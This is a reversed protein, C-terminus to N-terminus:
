HDHPPEVQVIVRVARCGHKHWGKWEPMWDSPDDRFSYRADCCAKMAEKRTRRITDPMVASSNVYTIGWLRQPKPQKRM